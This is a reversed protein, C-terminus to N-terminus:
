IHVEFHTGAAVGYVASHHLPELRHRIQSCFLLVQPTLETHQVSTRVHGIKKSPEPQLVLALIDGLIRHHTSNNQHQHDPCDSQNSRTCVVHKGGGGTRDPLSGPSRHNDLQQLAETKVRSDLGSM